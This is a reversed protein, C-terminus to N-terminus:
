KSDNEYQYLKISSIGTNFTPVPIDTRDHWPRAVTYGFYRGQADMGEMLQTQIEASYLALAVVMAAIKLAIDFRPTDKRDGKTMAEVRGRLSAALRLRATKLHDVAFQLSGAVCLFATGVAMKFHHIPRLIKISFMIEVMNSIYPFFFFINSKQHNEIAVVDFNYMIEINFSHECKYSRLGSLSSM